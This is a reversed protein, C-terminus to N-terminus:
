LEYSSVQERTLDEWKREGRGGVASHSNEPFMPDCSSSRTRAAPKPGAIWGTATGSGQGAYWPSPGSPQSDRWVLVSGQLELYNLHKFSTSWKTELFMFRACGGGGVSTTPLSGAAGLNVAKTKEVVDYATLSVTDWASRHDLWIMPQDAQAM